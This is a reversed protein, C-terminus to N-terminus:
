ETAALQPLVRAAWYIGFGFALISLGVLGIAGSSWRKGVKWLRDYESQSSPHSRDVSEANGFNLQAMYAAFFALTSLAAGIVYVLAIFVSAIWADVYARTRATEAAAM